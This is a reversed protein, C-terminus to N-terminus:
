MKESNDDQLGVTRRLFVDPYLHAFCVFLVFFFVVPFFCNLAKLLCFMITTDRVNKKKRLMRNTISVRVTMQSRFFFIMKSGLVASMVVVVPHGVSSWCTRQLVRHDGGWVAPM